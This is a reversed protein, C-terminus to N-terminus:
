YLPLDPELGMLVRGYNRMGAEHNLAVHQGMVHVDRWFRQMPNDQFISRSGALDMLSGVVERAQRAIYARCAFLRIRTLRDAEATGRGIEMLEDANRYLMQELTELRLMSEALVTQSYVLEAQRNQFLPARLKAAERFRQAVAQAGGLSPPVLSISLGAVFPVQYLPIIRRCRRM